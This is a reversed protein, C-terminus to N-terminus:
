SFLKLFMGGTELTYKDSHLRSILVTIPPESTPSPTEPGYGCLDVQWMIMLVACLDPFCIVWLHPSFENHNLTNIPIRICTVLSLHRPFLSSGFQLELSSVPPDVLIVWCRAYKVLFHSRHSVMNCSDMLPKMVDTYSTLQRGERGQHPEM